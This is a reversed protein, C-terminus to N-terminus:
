QIKGQTDLEIKLIDSFFCTFSLVITMGILPAFPTHHLNQAHEALFGFLLAGLPAGGM